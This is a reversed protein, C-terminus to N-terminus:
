IKLIVLYMKNQKIKDSSLETPLCFESIDRLCVDVMWGRLGIENKTEISIIRMKVDNSDDVSLSFLQTDKSKLEKRTRRFHHNEAM